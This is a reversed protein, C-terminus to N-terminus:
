IDSLPFNQTEDSWNDQEWDEGLEMCVRETYVIHDNEIEVTGETREGYGIKKGDKMRQVISKCETETTDGEWISLDELEGDNDLQFEFKTDVM